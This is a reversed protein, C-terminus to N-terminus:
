RRRNVSSESPTFFAAPQVHDTGAGITDPTLFPQNRVMEQRLRPNDLVARQVLNENWSFHKLTCVGTPDYISRLYYYRRVDRPGEHREAWLEEPLNFKKNWVEDVLLIRGIPEHQTHRLTNLAFRGTFLNGGDYNQRGIHGFPHFEGWPPPTLEYVQGSVGEALIHQRVEHGRYAYYMDWVIFYMGMHQATKYGLAHCAIGYSLIGLYGAIIAHSLWRKM